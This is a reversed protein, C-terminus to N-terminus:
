ITFSCPRENIECNLHSKDRRAEIFSTNTFANLTLTTLPNLNYDMLIQQYKGFQVWFNHENSASNETWDSKFYDAQLTSSNILSNLATEAGQSPDNVAFSSGNLLAHRTLAGNAGDAQALAALESATKNSLSIIKAEYDASNGQDPEFLKLLAFAFKHLTIDSNNDPMPEQPRFINSLYRISKNRDRTDGKDMSEVFENIQNLTLNNDLQGLVHAVLLADSIPFIYHNAATQTLDNEVYADTNVKIQPGVLVGISPVLSLGEATLYNKINGDIGLQPLGLTNLVNNLIEIGLATGLINSISGTLGAISYSGASNYTYGQQIAFLQVAMTSLFGGLSHGATTINVDGTPLKDILTKMTFVQPNAQGFGVLSLMLDTLLDKQGEPTLVSSFEPIETGRNALIYHNTLVGQADKEQLILGNYGTLSGTVVSDVVKFHSTFYKAMEESMQSLIGEQLMVQLDIDNKDKTLDTYAGRAALAHYFAQKIQESM